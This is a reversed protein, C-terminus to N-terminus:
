AFQGAPVGCVVCNVAVTVFEVLVATVQDTDGTFPPDILAVPSYVAGGIASPRGPLAVIVAVEWASVVL